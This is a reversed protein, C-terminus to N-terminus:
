LNKTAELLPTVQYGSTEAAESLQQALRYVADISGAAAQEAEKGDTQTIIHITALYTLWWLLTEFAEQNFWLVGQYRNIGLYTQLEWEQLAEQLLAYAQPSAPAHNNLWGWYNILSKILLAARKAEEEGMGIDQLATIIPKNLSWEEVWTRSIEAATFTEEDAKLRPDAKGLDHTFLWSLFTGWVPLDNTYPDRNKDPGGLIYATAARYTTSKSPASQLHDLRTPLELATKLQACVDQAIAQATARTDGNAGIHHQVARALDVVKQKVQALTQADATGEPEQIKADALWRFAAGSVLM